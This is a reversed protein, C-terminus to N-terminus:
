AVLLPELFCLPFLRFTSSIIVAEALRFNSSVGGLWEVDSEISQLLESSSCVVATSVLPTTLAVFLLSISFSFVSLFFFLDLRLFDSVAFIRAVSFLELFKLITRRREQMVTM